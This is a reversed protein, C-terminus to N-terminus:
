HGLARVGYGILLAPVASYLTAAVAARPALAIAPFLADGDNSIANALQASLPVVGQLYLATVLIQPGCGPILGVLVGLLPAAAGVSFFLTRMDLGTFYVALEFSLFGLIVWVSVFSTEAVAAEKLCASRPKQAFRATWSNLPQSCWVAVCLLAGVFGVWDELAIGLAEIGGVPAELQLCNLTGLVAGPALLTWFLRQLQAPVETTIGSPRQRRPSQQRMFGESHLHDVLYGTVTGAILAALFVALATAPERALLLFAADGMTAILVSVLAGFSMQGHVFQTVVIIAGGCGPLAGLLSACPVQWVSGRHLTQLVRHKFRRELLYFGALTLAVFVSVGLYADSLSEAILRFLVPDAQHLIALNAVILTMLWRDKMVALRRRGAAAKILTRETM